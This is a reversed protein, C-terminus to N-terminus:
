EDDEMEGEGEDKDEELLSDLFEFSDEDLLCSGTQTM